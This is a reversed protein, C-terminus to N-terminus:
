ILEKPKQLILIYQHVINPVYAFPYGYPRLRSGAQYWIKEGKPVFGRGGNIKAAAAALDAHTFIYKGEQYANRLIVVMYKGPKLLRFCQTFVEGMAALFDEYSKSNAIDGEEQSLMNYLTHRNSYVSDNGKCMTRKLQLNYPPDTVIFDFSNDEMGAMVKRCDGLHIEGPLLEPHQQLVQHYIEIWRPNIEIGVARRPPDCIAAGLLTGGVGAFPDLVIGDGKTFFEVLEQMLQPPKNAGHERRLDHALTSPYATTMVTKTFYLWEEGSLHNLRNRPHEEGTKYEPKSSGNGGHGVPELGASAASAYESNSGQHSVQMASSPFYKELVKKLLKCPAESCELCAEIRKSCDNRKGQM